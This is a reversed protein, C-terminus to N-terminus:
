AAKNGRKVIRAHMAWIAGPPGDVHLRKKGSVIEVANVVFAEPLEAGYQRRFQDIVKEYIRITDGVRIPETSM